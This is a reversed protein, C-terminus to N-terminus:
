AVAPARQPAKRYSLAEALHARAIAETEELDALTRALRLIRHFGRASLQMRDSATRLFAAAGSDLSAPDELVSSPATANTTSAPLGLAAYRAAQRRRARAVRIAVEESGEKPPPLILDAASVAPVDIQLDIRDLLPGSLRSLYQAM